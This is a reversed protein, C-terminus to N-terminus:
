KLVDELFGRVSKMTRGTANTAHIRHTLRRAPWYVSSLRPGRAFADAVQLGFPAMGKADTANAAVAMALGFDPFTMLSVTGGAPSGRHSVLRTPEGALQVSTVTWGLAYTTSAGSVLRTPTQFAAITDARLLGPKLMASGLRV